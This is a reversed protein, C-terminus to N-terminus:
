GSLNRGGNVSIVQGQIMQAEHSVLFEVLGVYDEDRVGRGSPNERAASALMEDARDGYVQRLADTDIASPAVANVRIGRPALEVALYRMLSEALAKGVGVAAYGPVVVRAGRSTLYIVSSGHQLLPLAAHVIYLLSLGNVGITETFRVRDVDLVPQPLVRVASHVIQGLSDTHQRVEAIIADAGEPTGCDRRIAVARRGSAALQDVARDASEDDTHYNLFIPRDPRALRKAIALGIGKTGGLM